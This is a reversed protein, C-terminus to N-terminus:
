SARRLREVTRYADSEPDLKGLALELVEASQEERGRRRFAMGLNAIVQGEHQEEGLEGLITAAQEFLDLAAADGSRDLALALNNLTLAESRRDGLERFIELAFRHQEAAEAYEGQRRLQVGAANARVAERERVVPTRAPWAEKASAVVSTAASRAHRQAHTTATAIHQAAVAHARSYRDRYTPLRSEVGARATAGARATGSM